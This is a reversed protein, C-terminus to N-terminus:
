DAFMLVQITNHERCEQESTYWQGLDERLFVANEVDLVTGYNDGCWLAKMSWHIGQLHFDRTIAKLNKADWFYLQIFLSGITQTLQKCGFSIFVVSTLMDWAMAMAGEENDKAMEILEECEQTEAMFEIFQKIAIPRSHFKGEKAKELDFAFRFEKSDAASYHEGNALEIYDYEKLYPTPVKERLGKIPKSYDFALVPSYIKVQNIVGNVNVFAKVYEKM